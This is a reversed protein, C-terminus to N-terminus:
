QYPFQSQYGSFQQYAESLKQQEAAELAYFGKKFMVNYITRQCNQTENYISSIDQYLQDHSLENLAVTYANSMYKETALQDNIFDRESMQPTKPVQLEPNKIKQQNM